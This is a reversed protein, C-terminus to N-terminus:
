SSSLTEKLYQLLYRAHPCKATVMTPNLRELLRDATDGKAYPRPCNKTAQELTAFVDNKPVHELSPWPRLAQTRLSQGFHRKLLEPDALFWTEQVQVMLFASDNGADQPKKWGDRSRLHDWASAGTVVPGESDVLLLPVIGEQQALCAQQFRDFTQGRGGGPIVQPLRVLNAARFFKHWAERFRRNSSSHGKRPSGGEIFLRIRVM